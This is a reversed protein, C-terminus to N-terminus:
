DSPTPALLSERPMTSKNLDNQPFLHCHQLWWQRLDERRSCRRKAFAVARLEGSRTYIVRFSDNFYAEHPLDVFLGSHFTSGPRVNLIHWNRVFGPPVFIPDNAHSPVPYEGSRRRRTGSGVISARNNSTSQPLNPPLVSIGGEKASPALKLSSIQAEQEVTPTISVEVSPLRAIPVSLTPSSTSILRDADEVREERKDNIASEICENEESNVDSSINKAVNNNESVHFEMGSCSEKQEIQDADKCNLPSGARSNKIETTQSGFTQNKITKYTGDDTQKEESESANSRKRKDGNSCNFGPACADADVGADRVDSECVLTTAANSSGKSTMLEVVNSSLPPIDKAEMLSTKDESRMRAFVDSENRPVQEPERKVIQHGVPVRSGSAVQNEHDSIGSSRTTVASARNMITQLGHMATGCNTSDALDSASHRDAPCINTLEFTQLPARKSVSPPMERRRSSSRRFIEDFTRMRKGPSQLVNFDYREKGPSSERNAPFTSYGTSSSSGTSHDCASGFNKSNAPSSLTKQKATERVIMDVGDNDERRGSDPMHCQKVSEESLREMVADSKGDASMRRTADLNVDDDWSPAYKGSEGDQTNEGPLSSRQNLMGGSDATVTPLSSEKGSQFRVTCLSSDKPRFKGLNVIVPEAPFSIPSNSATDVQAGCQQDEKATEIVSTAPVIDVNSRNVSAAASGQKSDLIEHKLFPAGDATGEDSQKTFIAQPLSETSLINGESSPPVFKERTSSVLESEQEAISPDAGTCRGQRPAEFEAFSRRHSSSSSVSTAGQMNKSLSSCKDGIVSDYSSIAEETSNRMTEPKKKLRESTRLGPRVPLARNFAKMEDNQRPEAAELATLKTANRIGPSEDPTSAWDVTTDNGLNGHGVVINSVPQSATLAQSFGMSCQTDNQCSNYSTQCNRPSLCESSADDSPQDRSSAAVDTTTRGTDSVQNNVSEGSSGIREVTTNKGLNLRKRPPEQAEGQSFERVCNQSLADLEKRQCNGDCPKHEADFLASTSVRHRSRAASPLASASSNHPTRRKCPALTASEPNSSLNKVGNKLACYRCFFASLELIVTSRPMCKEHYLLRCGSCMSTSGPTEAKRCEGCLKRNFIQKLHLLKLHRDVALTVCTPCFWAGRPVFRRKPCMCHTHYGDSCGDCLVMTNAGDTRCCIQCAQDVCDINQSGIEAAPSVPTEMARSTAAPDPAALRVATPKARGMIISTTAGIDASSSRCPEFGARSTGM